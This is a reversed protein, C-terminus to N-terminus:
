PETREPGLLVLEARESWPSGACRLYGELSSRHMGLLEATGRRGHLLVLYFVANAADSLPLRRKRRKTGTIALALLSEECLRAWAVHELIAQKLETM